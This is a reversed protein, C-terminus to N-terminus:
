PTPRVAIRGGPAMRYRPVAPDVRRSWAEIGGKLNGVEAFGERALRFAAPLSRIGHHCLVVLPTERSWSSLIEGALVPTVLESGDIRATEWEQPTRVDLLRLKEGGALREAVEEPEVQRIM